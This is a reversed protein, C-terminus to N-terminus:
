ANENELAFLRGGNRPTMWPDGESSEMLPDNLIPVNICNLREGADFPITNMVGVYDLGAKASGDSTRFDVTAASDSEGRVLGIQVFEAGERVSYRTSEFQVVQDTNSTTVTVTAYDM